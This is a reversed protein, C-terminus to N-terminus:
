PRNRDSGHLAFGDLITNIALEFRRDVSASRRGLRRANEAAALGQTLAVIVHAIDTADGRLIGADICRRIREVILIRVSGSTAIEDPNPAFDTFPQALMVQALVPNERMFRRYDALTRVLDARPDGSPVSADLQADLRRFGEFFVARVLGGKDGFLEYIASTSTGAAGAVTRATFAAVGDRALLQVAVALVHDRLEPTRLKARPM